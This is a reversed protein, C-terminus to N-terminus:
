CTHSVPRECDFKFGCDKNCITIPSSSPNNNRSTVSNNIVQAHLVEYRQRYQTDSFTEKQIAQYLQNNYLQAKLKANERGLSDAVDQLKSYEVIREYSENIRSSVINSSNLFIDRQHSNFRIILFFCIVELALFVFFSAYRVLFQFLNQM